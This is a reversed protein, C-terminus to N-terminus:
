RESLYQEDLLLGSEQSQQRRELTTSSKMLSDNNYNLYEKSDLNNDDLLLQTTSSNLRAKTTAQQFQEGEMELRSLILDIDNNFRILERLVNDEDAYLNYRSDESLNDYISRHKRKRVTTRTDDDIIFRKMSTSRRSLLYSNATTLSPKKKII